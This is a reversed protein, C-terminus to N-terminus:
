FSIQYVLSLFIKKLFVFIKNYKIWQKHCECEKVGVYAGNDVYYFGPQEIPGPKSKCKECPVFPPPTFEM